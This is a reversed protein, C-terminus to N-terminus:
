IPRKWMVFVKQSGDFVMSSPFNIRVPSTSFEFEPEGDTPTGTVSYFPMQEVVVDLIIDTAALTYTTGLNYEGTSAGSIYNQGNVTAWSDSFYDYDGSPPPAVSTQTVDGTVQINVDSKSYGPISKSFGGDSIVGSFEYIVFDGDDDTQLIKWENVARRIALTQLYNWSIRSETNDLVHVGSVNLTATGMGAIYERSSGSNVSTTELVEQSYRWTMGQGCFINYYTADIKLYVLINKSQVKNGM